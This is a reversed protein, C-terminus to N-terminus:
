TINGSVNNKKRFELVFTEYLRMYLYKMFNNLSYLM